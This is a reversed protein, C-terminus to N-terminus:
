YSAPDTRVCATKTDVVKVDGNSVVAVICRETFGAWWGEPQFRIVAHDARANVSVFDPQAATSRAVPAATRSGANFALFDHPAAGALLTEIEASRADVQSQAARDAVLKAGVVAAALVVVVVVGVIV